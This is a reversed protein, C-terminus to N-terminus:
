SLSRSVQDERSSWNLWLWLFLHLFLLLCHVIWALITSIPLLVFFPIWNSSLKQSLSSLKQSPSSLVSIRIGLATSIIPFTQGCLLSHPLLHYDRFLSASVSKSVSHFNQLSYGRSEWGGSPCMSRFGALWALLIIYVMWSNRATLLVLLVVCGMTNRSCRISWCLLTLWLTPFLYFVKLFLVLALFSSISHLTIRM